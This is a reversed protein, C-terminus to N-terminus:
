GAQRLEMRATAQWFEENYAAGIYGSNSDSNRAAAPPQRALPFQGNPDQVLLDGDNTATAIM